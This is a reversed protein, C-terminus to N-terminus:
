QTSSLGSSIDKMSPIESGVAGTKLLIGYLVVALGLVLAAQAFSRSRLKNKRATWLGLVLLALLVAVLGLIIHAWSQYSVWDRQVGFPDQKTRPVNNKFDSWTRAADHAQVLPNVLLYAGAALAAVLLALISAADIGPLFTAAVGTNPANPDVPEAFEPEGDTPSVWTDGAFAGTAPDQAAAAEAGPQATAEGPQAPQGPQGPQGSQGSQGPQDAARATAESMAAEVSEVSEAPKAASATEAPKAAGSEAPAPATPRDASGGPPQGTNPDPQTNPNETM